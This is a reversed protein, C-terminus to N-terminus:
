GEALRECRARSGEHGGGTPPRRRIGPGAPQGGGGSAARAGIHALIQIAQPFQRTGVYCLALNFELAFDEAVHGRAALFHPIAQQFQGRKTLAIGAQLENEAQDHPSTGAAYLFGAAMLALGTRGRM